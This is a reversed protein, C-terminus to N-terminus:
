EAKKADNQAKIKNFEERVEKKQALKSKLVERLPVVDKKDKLTDM